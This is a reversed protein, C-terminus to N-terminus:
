FNTQTCVKLTLKPKMFWIMNHTQAVPHLPGPATSGSYVTVTQELSQKPTWLCGIFGMIYCLVYLIVRKHKNYMRRPVWNMKVLVFVAYLVKKKCTLQGPSSPLLCSCVNTVTYVTQRQQPCRLRISCKLVM